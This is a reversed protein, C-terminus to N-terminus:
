RIMTQRLSSRLFPMLSKISAFFKLLMECMKEFEQDIEYLTKRQQGTVSSLLDGLDDDMFAGNIMETMGEFRYILKAWM